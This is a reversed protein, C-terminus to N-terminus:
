ANGRRLYRRHRAHVRVHLHGCLRPDQQARHQVANALQFQPAGYSDDAESKVEFPNLTVLAASKKAAATPPASPAVQAFATTALALASLVIPIRPKM